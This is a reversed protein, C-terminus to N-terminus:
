LTEVMVWGSVQATTTTTLNLVEDTEGQMITVPDCRDPQLTHAVGTTMTRPGGFATSGRKFTITQAGAAVLDYGTVQWRRGTPPTFLATTTATSINVHVAAM